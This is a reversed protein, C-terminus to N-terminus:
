DKQFLAFGTPTYNKYLHKLKGDLPDIIYAGWFGNYYLAVWHNNNVEIVMGRTKSAWKKMNDNTPAHYYRGIYKMGDFKTSWILLGDKTFKWKKAVEPPILSGKRYFRSWLACLSCILCGWRGITLKTNGITKSAWRNDLQKFRKM